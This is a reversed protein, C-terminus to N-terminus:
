LGMSKLFTLIKPTRYIHVNGTLILSLKAGFRSPADQNAIYCGSKVVLRVTVVCTKGACKTRMLASGPFVEWSTVWGLIAGLFACKVKSNKHTPSGFLLHM